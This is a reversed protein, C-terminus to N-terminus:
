SARTTFTAEMLDSRVRRLEQADGDPVLRITVDLGRDALHETVAAVGLGAVTSEPLTLTTRGDEADVRFRAPWPRTPLAELAEVIDRTTMGATSAGPAEQKGLIASTGPVGALECGLPEDPLARVLDRSDYRFVPMCERFPFYPTIVVTGLEGPQAPEGTELSLVEVHGMNLDHHLHGLTCTRGSVPVVETMGFGDNIRPVGFMAAAAGALAPSLIEGGVDVRHLQFDAAGLGRREAAALLLALYSPYTALMTVGDLLADLGEDAPVLGIVNARAGALRCANVDQQVAATARSSVCVQMVEGPGIEARLVGSLAALAPWLSAEYQSLWVEVPKGTSGTSRTSLVPSSGACVFDHPAAVLDAKLTVPLERITDATLRRPDLGAAAFRQAYFPSLRALRRATRRLARETLDRRMSPDAFPGDVLQEVDEGPRGFEALTALADDILRTVNAPDIKRGWVMAMALRLQRLGTEFV